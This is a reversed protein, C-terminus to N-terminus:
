RKIAYDYISRTKYVKLKVFRKRKIQTPISLSFNKKEGGVDIISSIFLEM